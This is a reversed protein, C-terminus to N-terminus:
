EFKNAKSYALTGETYEMYVIHKYNRGKTRYSPKKLDEGSNESKRLDAYCEM